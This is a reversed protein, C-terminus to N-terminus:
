FATTCQYPALALAGRLDCGHATHARARNACKGQPGAEQCYVSAVPMQTYIGAVQTRGACFRTYQLAASSWPRSGNVGLGARRATRTSGHFFASCARRAPSPGHRPRRRRRWRL